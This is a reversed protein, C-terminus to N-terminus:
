ANETRWGGTIFKVATGSELIDGHALEKWGPKKDKKDDKM